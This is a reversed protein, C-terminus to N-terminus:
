PTVETLEAVAIAKKALRLIEEDEALTPPGNTDEPWDAVSQRTREVELTLTPLARKVIALLEDRQRRMEAPSVGTAITTNLGEVIVAAAVEGPGRECFSRCDAVRRGDLSAFVVAGVRGVKPLCRLVSM